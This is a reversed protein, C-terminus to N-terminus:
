KRKADFKVKQMTLINSNVCLDEMKPFDYTFKSFLFLFDQGDEVSRLTNLILLNEELYTADDRSFCHVASPPSCLDFWGKRDSKEKKKGTDLVIPAACCVSHKLQLQLLTTTARVIGAPLGCHNECHAM